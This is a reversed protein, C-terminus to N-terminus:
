AATAHANQDTDLRHKAPLRRRGRVVSSNIIDDSEGGKGGQM